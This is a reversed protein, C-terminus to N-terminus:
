EQDKPSYWGEETENEQTRPGTAGRGSPRVMGCCYIQINQLRLINLLLLCGKLIFPQM